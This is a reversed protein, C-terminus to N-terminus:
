LNFDNSFVPEFYKQYIVYNLNLANILFILFLFNKDIKIFIISLILGILFSAFFIINNDFLYKSIKFYFGAVMYVMM